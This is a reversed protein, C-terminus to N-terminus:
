SLLIAFFQCLFAMVFLTAGVALWRQRIRQDNALKRLVHPIVKEQLTTAVALAAPLVGMLLLAMLGVALVMSLADVLMVDMLVLTVTVWVMAAMIVLMLALAALMAVWLLTLPFQKIGKELGQELAKLREEGLIEPAAFWFSLFELMVGLLNLLKRVLEWDM